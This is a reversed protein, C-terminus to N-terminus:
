SSFLESTQQRVTGLYSLFIKEVLPLSLFHYHPCEREFSLVGEPWGSEGTLQALQVLLQELLKGAVLM